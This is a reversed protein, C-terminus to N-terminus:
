PRVILLLYTSHRQVDTLTTDTAAQEGVGYGGGGLLSLSVTEDGETASDWSPTLTLPASGAGAPIVITGGSGDFSAAGDLTFDVGYVASGGLSFSV